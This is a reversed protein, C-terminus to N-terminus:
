TYIFIDGVFNQNDTNCYSPIDERNFINVNIAREKKNSLTLRDIETLGEKRLYRNYLDIKKEFVIKM